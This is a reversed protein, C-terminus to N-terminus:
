QQALVPGSQSVVGLLARAVGTDADSYMRAIATFVEGARRLEEQAAQNMALMQTAATGFAAAAYASVEEAGAPSLATLSTSATAAAQIGQFASDVVQSGIDAAAPDFSMSQM